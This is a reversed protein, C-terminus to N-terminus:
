IFYTEPWVPSFHFIQTDSFRFFNTFGIRTAISVPCHGSKAPRVARRTDLLNEVRGVSSYCSFGYEPGPASSSM